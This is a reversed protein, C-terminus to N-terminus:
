TKREKKKMIVNTWVDDRPSSFTRGTTILFTPRPAKHAIGPCLTLRRLSFLNDDTIVALGSCQSSASRAQHMLERFVNLYVRWRVFMKWCNAEGGGKVVYVEWVERCGPEFRSGLYKSVLDSRFISGFHNIPMLLDVQVLHTLHRWIIRSPRTVMGTQSTHCFVRKLRLIDEIWDTLRAFFPGLYLVIGVIDPGM